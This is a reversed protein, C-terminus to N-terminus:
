YKMSPGLQNRIKHSESSKQGQPGIRRHKYPRIAESEGRDESVSTGPGRKPINELCFIEPTKSKEPSEIRLEGSSGCEHNGVNAIEWVLRMQPKGCSGRECNGAPDTAAIERLLRMRLKRFDRIRSGHSTRSIAFAAGVARARFRSHPEQPFDRNRSRRSVPCQM